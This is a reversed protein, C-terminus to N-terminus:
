HDRIIVEDHLDVQDFLTLIDECRMRICGKSRPVGDIPYPTGHIYIYRSMSDVKGLRNKGPELGSLWLIRGLIWDTGDPLHDKLASYRGISRRAKFAMDVPMGAGIKARIQHRGRPTQASDRLEGLGNAATSVRYRAILSDDKFHLLSQDSVVVELRSM